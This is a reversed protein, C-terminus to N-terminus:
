FIHWDFWVCCFVIVPGLKGILSETYAKLEADFAYNFDSDRMADDVFCDFM